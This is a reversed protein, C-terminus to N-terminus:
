MKLMKFDKDDELNWPTGDPQLTGTDISFGPRLGITMAQAAIRPPSYVEAVSPLDGFRKLANLLLEYDKHNCEQRDENYIWDLLNLSLIRSDVPVRTGAEGSGAAGRARRARRPPERNPDSPARVTECEYPPPPPHPMLDEMAEIDDM